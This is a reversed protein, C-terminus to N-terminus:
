RPFDALLAGPGSFRFGSLSIGPLGKALGLIRFRRGMIGPHVLTQFQRMMGAPIAAPDPLSSAIGTLFQAQDAFGIVEWGKARAALAVHTFNVDATLDTEGPRELPDAILRHDRYGRISGAAREPLFLEQASGGYDIILVVGQNMRASLEEMWPDIGPCVETEFGEPASSPLWRWAAEADAELPFPSWALNDGDAVIRLEQWRGQDFRLRRVPFADLLENCLFVGAVPPDKPLNPLIQARTGLRQAQIERFRPNPEIILHRWPPGEGAHALLDASFQGDHAGQEIVDIPGHPWVAQIERIQRALLFGFCSGVSVSTFFDGARGIPRPRSYYGEEPHYLALRMFEAFSMGTQSGTALSLLEERLGMSEPSILPLRVAIKWAVQRFVSSLGYDISLAQRAFSCRGVM